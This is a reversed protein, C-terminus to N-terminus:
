SIFGRAKVRGCVDGRPGAPAAVGKERARQELLQRHRAVLANCEDLTKVAHMADHFAGREEHTLLTSGRGGGWGHGGGHRYGPGCRGGPSPCDAAGQAVRCGPEMGPGWGSGPQATASAAAVAAVLGIAVAVTNAM